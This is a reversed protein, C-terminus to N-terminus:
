AFVGDNVGVIYLAKVGQSRIRARDGVTVEDLAM